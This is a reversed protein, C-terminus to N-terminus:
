GIALRVCQQLARHRLMRRPMKQWIEKESRVEILYERVTIPMIRDRRYISCEIWEPIGDILTEAQNFILGNFQGHQNLLKSCGEITIFVQWHGDEYQTFSIEENLPDLHLNQITRLMILITKAPVEIQLDIWSLLESEDIELQEAAKSVEKRILANFLSISEPISFPPIKNSQTKGTNFQVTKINSSQPLSEILDEQIDFLTATTDALSTCINTNVKDAAATVQQRELISKLTHTRKSATRKMM